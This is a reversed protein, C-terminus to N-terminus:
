DDYAICRYESAEVSRGLEGGVLVGAIAGGITAATKGSGKGIQAGLIGGTAGGLVGGVLSPDFAYPDCSVVEHRVHHHHRRPVMVYRDRYVTVYRPREVVIVRSDDYEDDDDDGYYYNYTNHHSRDSEHEHKRRDRVRILPGEAAEGAAPLVLFGSAPGAGAFSPAAYAAVGVSTAILLGVLRRLSATKRM